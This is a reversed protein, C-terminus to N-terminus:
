RFAGGLCGILITLLIQPLYFGTISWSFFSQLFRAWNYRPISLDFSPTTTPTEKRVSNFRDRYCREIRLYEADLVAFFVVPIIAIFVLEFSHMSVFASIIATIAAISLSKLNASNNAVRSIVGQIMELSRLRSEVFDTESM